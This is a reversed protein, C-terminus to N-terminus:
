QAAQARHPRGWRTWGPRPPANDGANLELKPTTPFYHEILEYQWDPKRSHERVEGGIASHWQTGEAPAVVKGRTGILLIEHNSRNWRGTSIKEKGWVFNSKYVFGRLEMMHIAVALHQNTSWMWLACDDAACALRDATRKVIEEPTHANTATEYHNEPHKERGADSYTEDDWEFDELIVGFKGDPIASAARKERGARSAQKAVVRARTALKEAPVTEILSLQAARTMSEAMLAATKVPLIGQRVAAAVQPAARNTVIEAREVSRKSAGMRAAREAQSKAESKEGQPSLDTRAGQRLRKMDAAAMARQSENLHRRPLNLDVVYDLPDGEKDPQFPRLRPDLGIELCARYRNRGDLVKSQYIVIPERQGHARIAEVLEAFDEGQMLPFLEALPHFPISATM